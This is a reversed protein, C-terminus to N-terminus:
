MQLESRFGRVGCHQEGRQRGLERPGAAELEPGRLGPGPPSHSQRVPLEVLRGVSGARAPGVDDEDADGRPRPVHVQQVLPPRLIPLASPLALPHLPALTRVQDHQSQGPFCSFLLEPSVKLWKALNQHSLYEFLIEFVSASSDIERLTLFSM